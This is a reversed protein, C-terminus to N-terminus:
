ATRARAFRSAEEETLFSVFPREGVSFYNGGTLMIRRLDSEIAVLTKRRDASPVGTIAGVLVVEAWLELSGDEAERTKPLVSVVWKALNPELAAQWRKGASPDVVNM